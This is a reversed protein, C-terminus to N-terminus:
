PSQSCVALSGWPPLMSHYNWSELLLTDAGPPKLAPDDRGIILSELDTISPNGADSDGTSYILFASKPGVGTESLPQPTPTQM